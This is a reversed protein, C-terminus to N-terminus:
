SPHSQADRGRLGLVALTLCGLMAFTLSILGFNVLGEQWPAGAHGAGAIPTLESTGFAAALTTSAWNVYTGYLALGFTFRLARPGLRLERWVLGLVALFTGNMVGELHASVGMRPNTLAPVVLGTVLGLLFLLMGHFMLRRATVATEM